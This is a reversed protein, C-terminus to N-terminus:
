RSEYAYASIIAKYMYSQSFLEHQKKYTRYTAGGLMNQYNYTIGRSRINIYLSPLLAPVM